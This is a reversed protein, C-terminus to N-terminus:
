MSYKRLLHLMSVHVSDSPHLTTLENERPTLGAVTFHHETSLKISVTSLGNNILSLHHSVVAVEKLQVYYNHINCISGIYPYPTSTYRVLDSFGSMNDLACIACHM